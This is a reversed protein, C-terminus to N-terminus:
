EEEPLASPASDEQQEVQDSIGYIRPKAKKKPSPPPSPPSVEKEPNLLRVTGMSGNDVWENGQVDIMVRTDSERREDVIEVLLGEITLV